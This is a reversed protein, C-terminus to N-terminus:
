RRKALISREDITLRKGNEVTMRGDVVIDVDRRDCQVSSRERSQFVAAAWV